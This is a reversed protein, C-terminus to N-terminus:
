RRVCEHACMLVAVVRPGTCPQPTDPVRCAAHGARHAPKATGSAGHERTHTVGRPDQFISFSQQLPIHAIM